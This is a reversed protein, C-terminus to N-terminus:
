PFPTPSLRRDPRDTRADPPPESPDPLGPVALVRGADGRDVVLTRGIRDGIRRHGKTTIMVGLEVFSIIPIPIIWPVTRGAAGLLGPLGGDSRRVIRLGVIAKGLSFGSTGALFVHNLIFLVLTALLASRNWIIQDDDVISAIDGRYVLMVAISIIFADLLFAVLRRAVVATPDSPTEGRGIQNM